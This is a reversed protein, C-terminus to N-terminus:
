LFPNTEGVEMGSFDPDTVTSVNFGRLKERVEVERETLVPLPTSIGGLSRPMSAYFSLVEFNVSFIGEDSYRSLNVESVRLLPLSSELEGFFDALERLNGKIKVGLVLSPVPDSKATAKEEENLKGPEAAIEELDVGKVTAAKKIATIALLPSKEEPLVRLVTQSDTLLERESLNELM